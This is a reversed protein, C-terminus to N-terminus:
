MYATPPLNKDASLFEAANSRNSGWAPVQVLNTSM